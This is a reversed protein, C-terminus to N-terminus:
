PRPRDLRKAMAIAAKAQAFHRRTTWLFYVFMVALPGFVSRQERITRTIFSSSEPDAYFECIVTVDRASLGSIAVKKEISQSCQDRTLRQKGPDFFSKATQEGMILWKNTDKVTILAGPVTAFMVNVLLLISIGCAVILLWILTKSTPRKSEAKLGPLEHDFHAGCAKIDGMDENHSQGWLILAHMQAVTRAKGGNLRFQMLNDQADIYRNFAEDNSKTKGAILRWIWRFVTHSSNTRYRILVALLVLLLVIVVPGGKSLTGALSQITANEIM